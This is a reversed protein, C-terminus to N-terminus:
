PPASPLSRLRDPSPPRGCGDIGPLAAVGMTIRGPPTRRHHEVATTDGPRRNPGANRHDPRRRRRQRHCRRLKPTAHEDPVERYPNPTTIPDPWPQGCRGECNGDPEPWTVGCRVRPSPWGPPSTPHHSIRGTPWTCWPGSSHVSRPWRKRWRPHCAITSTSEPLPPLCRTCVVPWRREDNGVVLRASVTTSIPSATSRCVRIIGGLDGGPSVVASKRVPTVSARFGCSRYVFPM